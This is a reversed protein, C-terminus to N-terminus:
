VPVEVSWLWELRRVVAYTLKPRGMDEWTKELLPFRRFYWDLVQRDSESIPQDEMITRVMWFLACLAFGFASLIKAWAPLAFLLLGGLTFFLADLHYPCPHELPIHFDARM